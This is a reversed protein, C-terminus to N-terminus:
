NVSGCWGPHVLRNEHSFIDYPQGKQSDTVSGSDPHAVTDEAPILICSPLFFIIFPFCFAVYFLAFFQVFWMSPLFHLTHHAPNRPSPSIIAKIGPLPKSNELLTVVACDLYIAVYFARCASGLMAGWHRM